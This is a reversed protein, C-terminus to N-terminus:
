HGNKGRVTQRKQVYLEEPTEHVRLRPINPLYICHVCLLREGLVKGVPTKHLLLKAHIYVCLSTARALSRVNHGERGVRRFQFCCKGQNGFEYDIGYARAKSRVFSVFQLIKRKKEIKRKRERWLKIFVFHVKWAYFESKKKALAVAIERKQKTSKRRAIRESLKQTTDTLYIQELILIQTNTRSYVNSTSSKFYTTNSEIEISENAALYPKWYNFSNLNKGDDDFM